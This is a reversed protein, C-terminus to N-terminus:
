RYVSYYSQNNELADVWELHYDKVAVGQEADYYAQDIFGDNTAFSEFDHQAAFVEGILDGDDDSSM